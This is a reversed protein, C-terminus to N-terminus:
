PGEELPPVVLLGPHQVAAVYKPHIEGYSKRVLEPIERYMPEVKAYYGLNKYLFGVRMESEVTMWHDDGLLKRQIAWAQEAPAIAETSKRNLLDSSQKYLAVAKDLQRRQDAPM